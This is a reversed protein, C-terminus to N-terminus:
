RIRKIFYMYNLLNHLYHIKKLYFFFQMHM